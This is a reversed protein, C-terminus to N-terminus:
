LSNILKRKATYLNNLDIRAQYLEPAHWLEVPENDNVSNKLEAISLDMAKLLVVKQNKTLELNM